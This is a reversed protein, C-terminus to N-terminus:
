MAANPSRRRWRFQVRILSVYRTVTPERVIDDFFQGTPGREMLTQRGREKAKLGQGDSRFSPEDGRGADAARSGRNSISCRPGSPSLGLRLLSEPTLLAVHHCAACNVQVLDGHRLDEIRALYLPQM